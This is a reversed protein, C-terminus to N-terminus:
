QKELKLDIILARLREYDAQLHAALQEPTSPSAEFGRQQLYSRFDPESLAKTIDANLKRVIPQPTAGPAMLAFWLKVDVQPLGAEAFTPVDPLQASRQPSTIVLARLKGAQVPGVVPTTGVMFMAVEGGILSTIAQATAGKYPVHTIDVKAAAKFIEAGMHPTSGVGISAYNLEGPKQRALAIFQALTTAAVHPGIILVQYGVAMMSIPTLDRKWDYPVSKMLSPAVTVPGDSAMYITYGDPASRVAAETGILGGGGPKNEVITQQGWTAALKNALFRTVIDGSGGPAYPVIFRVPRSPFDQASAVSCPVCALLALLGLSVRWGTPQEPLRM